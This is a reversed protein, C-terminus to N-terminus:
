CVVNLKCRFFDPLYGKGIQLLNKVSKYQYLAEGKQFEDASGNALCAYLRIDEENNPFSWFAIRLQLPEPVPPSVREVLEFPINRAVVRSALETLSM